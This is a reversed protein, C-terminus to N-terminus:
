EFSHHLSFDMHQPNLLQLLPNLARRIGDLGAPVLHCPHNLQHSGHAATPMPLFQSFSELIGFGLTPAILRSPTKPASLGVDTNQQAQTSPFDGEHCPLPSLHPLLEKIQPEM